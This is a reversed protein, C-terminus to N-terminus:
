CSSHDHRLRSPNKHYVRSLNKLGFEHFRHANASIRQRFRTVKGADIFHHAAISGDAGVSGHTQSLIKAQGRLKPQIKLIVIVQSNGFAASDAPLDLGAVTDIARFSGNWALDRYRGRVLVLLLWCEVM